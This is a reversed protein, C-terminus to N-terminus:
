PQFRKPLAAAEEDTLRVLSSAICSQGTARVRVNLDIAHCVVGNNTIPHFILTENAANACDNAFGLRWVARGQRLYVTHDDAVRQGDILGLTLCLGEAHAPGAEVVPYTVALGALAAAAGAALSLNRLM